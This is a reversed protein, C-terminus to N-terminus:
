PAKTIAQDTGGLLRNTMFLYDVSKLQIDTIVAMRNDSTEFRFCDCDDLQRCVSCFLTYDIHFNETIFDESLVFTGDTTPTHLIYNLINFSTNLCFRMLGSRDFCCSKFGCKRNESLSNFFMLFLESLYFFAGTVSLLKNDGIPIEESKKSEEMLLCLIPSAIGATVFRLRQHFGITSEISRNEVPSGTSGIKPTLAGFSQKARENTTNLTDEALFSFCLSVPNMTKKKLLFPFTCASALWYSCLFLFLPWLVRREGVVTPMQSFADISVATLSLFKRHVKYAVFIGLNLYGFLAYFYGLCDDQTSKVQVTNHRAEQNTRLRLQVLM